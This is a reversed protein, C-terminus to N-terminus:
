VSEKKISLFTPLGERISSRNLVVVGLFASSTTKLFERCSLVSMRRKIVSIATAVGFHTISYAGTMDYMVRQRKVKRDTEDTAWSRRWVASLDVVGESSITRRSM